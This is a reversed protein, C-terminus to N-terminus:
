YEPNYFQQEMRFKGDDDFGCLVMFNTDYLLQLADSVISLNIAECLDSYRDKLEELRPDNWSYAQADALETPTYWDFEDLRGEIEDNWEMFGEDSHECPDGDNFYPTYGKFMVYRAGHDTLLEEMITAFKNKLNTEFEEKAVALQNLKEVASM